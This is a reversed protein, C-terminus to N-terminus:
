LFVISYHGDLQAPPVAAERQVRAVSATDGARELPSTFIQDWILVPCFNAPHCYLCVLGFGDTVMNTAVPWM